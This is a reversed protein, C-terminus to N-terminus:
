FKWSVEEKVETSSVDLKRKQMLNPKNAQVPSGGVNNNSMLLDEDTFLHQTDLNAAGGVDIGLKSVLLQRQQRVKEKMDICGPLETGRKVDSVNALDSEKIEYKHTDSSLLKAGNRLVVDLRFNHLKSHESSILLDTADAFLALELFDLNKIISEITQSAAIRTDWSQNM